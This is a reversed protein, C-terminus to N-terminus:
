KETHKPRLFVVYAGFNGLRFFGEEATPLPKYNSKYILYIPKDRPGDHYFGQQVERLRKFSDIGLDQIQRGNLYNKNLIALEDNSELPKVKAYYYHAYSKFHMTEVYADKQSVQNYFQFLPQQLKCDIIPVLLAAVIFLNITGFVFLRNVRKLNALTQALIFLLIVGSTFIVILKWQAIMSPTNIIANTFDDKINATLMELGKPSLVFPIALQILLLPLASLLLLFGHIKKLRFGKDLAQEIWYAAMFCLPLWCLSSYHVIKTKVISFLILVVWFLIHFTTFFPKERHIDVSMTMARIAFVSAPFCGFFLVLPHYYFPQQHGAVNQSFLEFQYTIFRQIFWPGNKITEPLFWISIIVTAILASLLFSSFTFFVKRNAISLGILMLLFILLAVPGKILVAVGILLAAYLLNRRNNIQNQHHSYALGLQYIAWFIFLNFTPDILGTKFYFHPIISGLYALVWWQAVSSRFHKVGIFYILNLTAIASLVTPLRAAFENVGFLKMSLLQMWIFLPPKEWFPEYNITVSSYNGTLLMERAAEAFNIEDWDFLHVAGLFPLFFMIGLAVLIFFTVVNYQKM